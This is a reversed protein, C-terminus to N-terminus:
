EERTEEERSGTKDSPVSPVMDQERDGQAALEGFSHLIRHGMQAGSSVHLRDSVIRQSWLERAYAETGPRRVNQDVSEVPGAKLWTYSAAAEGCGLSPRVDKYSLRYAQLTILSLQDSRATHESSHPSPLIQLLLLCGDLASQSIHAFWARTSDESWTRKSSDSSGSLAHSVLAHWGKRVITHDLDLVLRQVSAYSSSVLKRPARASRSSAAKALSVDVVLIVKVLLHLSANSKLRNYPKLRQFASNVRTYSLSRSSGAVGWRRVSILGDATAGFGEDCGRAGSQCSGGEVEGIAGEANPQLNENAKIRAMRRRRSRRRWGDLRSIRQKCSRRREEEAAEDLRKQLTIKECALCDGELYGSFPPIPAVTFTGNCQWVNGFLCVINECIDIWHDYEIHSCRRCMPIRRWICM